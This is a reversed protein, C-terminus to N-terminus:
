LLSVKLPLEAKGWGQEVSPYSVLAPNWIVTKESPEFKMTSLLTVLVVKMELQSFKFGICGRGGGLFTMLHSYVGPIRADELATPLPKLWREPKWEDADEGWLEKNCNSMKLDAVVWMGKKVPLSEILTGDLGRIPASLPLVGDKIVQRLTIPVPPSLRLSERCVADLYPLGMVEDYDLDKLKGTGDDRARLIEERLTQQVDTHEALLELTRSLANSTTDMAALVMTSIQAVVEEAPLRDEEAAEMNARMLVGIIDKGEGVQHKMEQNGAELLAKKENYIKTSSEHMTDTVEIMRRIPAYPIMEAVRRRFSPTGIRSMLPFLPRFTDTPSIAPFYSILAEGFEDAADKTLPDFSYGLGGQGILELAARGMWGLIDIEQAGSKVRSSVAEELRGIIANFIPTMDRLHKASFLPNLLKRQRQHQHGISSFLGPGLTIMNTLMLSTNMGFVDTDKIFISHMARPDFTYIWNTKMPGYVRFLRGYQRAFADRFAGRDPGLLQDVNGRLFSVPQPGPVNDWPSKARVARLIRWVVYLVFALILFQQLPTM